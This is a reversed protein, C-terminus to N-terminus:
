GILRKNLSGVQYYAVVVIVRGQMTHVRRILLEIVKIETYDKSDGRSTQAIASPSSRM